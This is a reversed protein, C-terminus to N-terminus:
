SRTRVSIKDSRRSSCRGGFAGDELLPVRCYLSFRARYCARWKVHGDSLFVMAGPLNYAVQLAKWGDLSKSLTGTLPHVIVERLSIGETRAITSNVSQKPAGGASAFVVQSVAASFRGM